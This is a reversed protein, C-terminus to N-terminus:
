PWDEQQWKLSRSCSKKKNQIEFTLPFLLVVQKTENEENVVEFRRSDDLSSFYRTTKIKHTSTPLFGFIRNTYKKNNKAQHRSYLPPPKKGLYVLVGRPFLM